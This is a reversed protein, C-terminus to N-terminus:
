RRRALRKFFASIRHRREERRVVAASTMWNLQIVRRPGAFPEFGHWANPENKFVLLTGEDPPVEAIVDELDIASRVLRLRGRPSEWTDNMYILATVLKTRSDTHIKGDAVRSQGRVTIMTPAAALAVGLKAGVAEAMARGTLAGALARFASGYRLSSLPFSGPHDIKPFDDRIADLAAARLFRPVIFYRFPETAVPAAALAALDLTGDREAAATELMDAEGRM